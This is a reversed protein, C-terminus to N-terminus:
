AYAIYYCDWNLVNVKDDGNDVRFGNAVIDANNNLYAAGDPKAIYWQGMDESKHYVRSTSGSRIVWTIWKPTFGVTILRNNVGDGLYYDVKIMGDLSTGRADSIYLNGGGLVAQYFDGATVRFYMYDAVQNSPYFIIDSDAHLSITTDSSIYISNGDDTLIYSVGGATYFKMYDTGDGVQFSNANSTAGDIVKGDDFANDLTFIIDAHTLLSITAGTHNHSDDLVQMNAMTSGLLDGTLPLTDVYVKRTADNNGAPAPLSGVQNGNMDIESHFDARGSVDVDGDIDVDDLNSIGDVDLDGDVDVDGTINANQNVTIDQVLISLVRLVNNYTRFRVDFGVGLADREYIVVYAQATAEVGTTHAVGNQNIYLWEGNGVVVAQESVQIVDGDYMIYGHSLTDVGNYTCGDIVFRPLLLDGLSHYFMWQIGGYGDGLTEIHQFLDRDIRGPRKLAGYDYFDREYKNSPM